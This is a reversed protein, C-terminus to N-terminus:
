GCCRPPARGSPNFRPSSKVRPEQLASPAEAQGRERAPVCRVLERDGRGPSVAPVFPPSGLSLGWPYSGTVIGLSLLTRGAGAPGRWGMGDERVAGYRARAAAANAARLGKHPLPPAPAM